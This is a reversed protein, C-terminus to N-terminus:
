PHNKTAPFRFTQGACCTTVTRTMDSATHWQVHGDVYAWNTGLLAGNQNHAFLSWDGVLLWDPYRNDRTPSNTWTYGSLNAMYIYSSTQASGTPSSSPCVLIEPKTASVLFPSTFYKERWLVIFGRTMNPNDYKFFPYVSASAQPPFFGNNDSSYMLYALSLQKLNSACKAQRAKERANALAPLLMAALIAIIAIVVLLEILTFGTKRREM